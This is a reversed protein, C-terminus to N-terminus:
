YKQWEYSTPNVIKQGFQSNSIQSKSWARRGHLLLLSKSAAISLGRFDRESVLSMAPLETM